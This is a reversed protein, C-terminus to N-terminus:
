DMSLKSKEREIFVRLTTPNKGTLEKFTETIHPAKQFRPLFHLLMMVGIFKISLGEKKKIAYFSFPNVNKYRIKTGTIQSILDAVTGFDMNESGTIEFVRNKFRDFDILLKAIVEGINEVDVWNFKARGAPLSIRGKSRIESLLTTTLNQMFYGPRVFIHEFGLELILKEINHHPIVKSREVGQVSLFVIKRIGSRKVNELFPRLIGNVDALQPPRLLFLIDCQKLASAYSDVNEFDFPVFQLQPYGKFKEKASEIHRVGAIVTDVTGAEFLFHIVEHGINGTAGTILITKM